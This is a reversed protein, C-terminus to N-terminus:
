GIRDAPYSKDIPLYAGGAKLVGLIGIVMDISSEIMIGVVTGSQIGKKRLARGLQNAKENLEKYTIHQNEYVVAQHGPRREM